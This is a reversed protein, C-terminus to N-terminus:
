TRDGGEIEAALKYYNRALGVQDLSINIIAIDQELVPGNSCWESLRHGLILANDGLRLIYELLAAEKSVVSNEQERTTLWGGTIEKM